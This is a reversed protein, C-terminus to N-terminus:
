CATCDGGSRREGLERIGYLMPPAGLAAESIGNGVLLTEVFVAGQETLGSRTFLRIEDSFLLTVM